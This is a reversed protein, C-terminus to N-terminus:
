KAQGEAACEHERRGATPLNPACSGIATAVAADADTLVRRARKRFCSGFCTTRLRAAIRHREDAVPRRACAGSSRDARAVTRGRARAALVRASRTRCAGESTLFVGTPAAVAEKRTGSARGARICTGAAGTPKLAGGPRNAYIRTRTAEAHEFARRPSVARVTARATAAPRHSGAVRCNSASPPDDPLAGQRRSNAIAARRRRPFCRLRPQGPSARRM